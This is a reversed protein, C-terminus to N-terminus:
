FCGWPFIWCPLGDEDDDDDEEYVEYELEEVREDLDRINRKNRAIKRQNKRIKRLLKRVKYRTKDDLDEILGLLEAEMEYVRQDSAAIAAVLAESSSAGLADIAEVRASEEAALAGLLSSISEDIDGKLTQLSDIVSFFSEYTRKELDRVEAVLSNHQEQLSEMTEEHEADKAQLARLRDKTDQDGHRTEQIGREYLYKAAKDRSESVDGGAADRNVTYGHKIDDTTFNRDTLYDKAEKEGGALKDSVKETTFGRDALHTKTRKYAKEVNLDEYNEDIAGCGVLLAALFLTRKM